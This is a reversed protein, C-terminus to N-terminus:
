KWMWRGGETKEKTEKARMKLRVVDIFQFLIPHKYHNDSNLEQMLKELEMDEPVDKIVGKKIAM